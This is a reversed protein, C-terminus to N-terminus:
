DKIFKFCTGGSGTLFVDENKRLEEIIKKLENYCDLAPKELQNVLLNYKNNKFYKLQKKFSIKKYETQEDFKEFVLKTSCFVNTNILEVKPTQKLKIEKIKEGYNYVKAVKFKSVFFMCDSGIQSITEKSPKKILLNNDVLYNILTVANSSAGGLGGGMPIRKIIEINFFKNQLLKQNRLIKLTKKIICNEIQLKKNKNDFYKISDENSNNVEISMDDWISEVKLFVSKLKHLNSNEKKKSVLLFVNVKPYSKLYM